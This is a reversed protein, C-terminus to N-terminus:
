APRSPRGRRSCGPRRRSGPPGPRPPPSTPASARAARGRREVVEGDDEVVVLDLEVVEHLLHEVELRDHGLPLGEAPRHELDVAVVIAWIPLASSWASAVRPLGVKMTAWVTLPLPTENMSFLGSHCPLAGLGASAIAAMRLDEADSGRRPCLVELGIRSARRDHVLEGGQLLLSAPWPWGRPTRRPAARGRRGSSRMTVRSASREFDVIVALKALFYGSRANLRPMASDFM